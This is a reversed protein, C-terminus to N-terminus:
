APDPPMPTIRLVAMPREIMSNSNNIGMISDFPTGFIFVAVFQEFKVLAPVLSQRLIPFVRIQGPM